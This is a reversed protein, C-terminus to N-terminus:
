RCGVVSARFWTRETATASPATAIPLLRAGLSRATRKAFDSQIALINGLLREYTDAWLHTEDAVQVLQATIRVRDAAQRVSGELVFEVALKRGIQAVSGSANKYQMVSTRAIVGLHRPDLRALQAITEETLGDSFSELESDCNLSEFPLVAIRLRGDGSAGWRSQRSFQPRRARRWAELEPRFAYISGLKSHLLRHIPLNEEKEWRQVTRVARKFYTAIEKWSDLREEETLKELGLRGNPRGTQATPGSSAM